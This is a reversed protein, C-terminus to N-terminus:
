KQEGESNVVIVNMKKCRECVKRVSGQVLAVEALVRGCHRCRWTVWEVAATHTTTHLAAQM